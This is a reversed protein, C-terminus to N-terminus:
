TEKGKKNMIALATFEMIQLDDMVDARHRTNYIQFLSYVASYDLGLVGGFGTSKWQTALKLFMNVAEWNEKFVPFEKGEGDTEIADTAGFAKM